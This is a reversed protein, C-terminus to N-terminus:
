LLWKKLFETQTVKTKEVDPGELACYHGGQLIELQKPERAENFAALQGDTPCVTDNVGIVLLFPTPAILPIYPRPNHHAM